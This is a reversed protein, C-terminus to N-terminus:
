DDFREWGGIPRRVPYFAGKRFGDQEAEEIWDLVDDLAWPGRHIEDPYRDFMVAYEYQQEDDTM